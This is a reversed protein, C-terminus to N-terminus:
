DLGGTLAEWVTKAQSRAWADTHDLVARPEDEATGAKVTFARYRPLRETVPVHSHIGKHALVPFAALNRIRLRVKLM